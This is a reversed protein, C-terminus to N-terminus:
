RIPAIRGGRRAPRISRSEARARRRGQGPAGRTVRRVSRCSPQSCQVVFSRAPSRAPAGGLEGIFRYGQRSFTQIADPQGGERLLGRILSVARMISSDTVIVEPWIASLLEEKPVVREHNRVLYVLLDFVRPQLPLPRTGLRLERTGEDLEFRGFRFIM